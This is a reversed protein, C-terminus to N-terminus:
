RINRLKAKNTLRNWAKLTRIVLSPLLRLIRLYSTRIKSIPIASEEKRLVNEVVESKSVRHEAIQSFPLRPEQLPLTCTVRTGKGPASDIAITGGHAEITKKAIALGLGSGAARQAGDRTRFFRTFVYPLEEPPIGIGTDIITVVCEADTGYVGVDIRHAENTKTDIYKISNTILDAFVEELQRRAGCICADADITAALTIDKSEALVGMYEVISSVLVGVDIKERACDRVTADTRALRVLDRVMFSMDQSLTSCIKAHKDRPHKKLLLAAHAQIAALPTQLGHAIDALAEDHTSQAAATATAASSLAAGPLTLSPSPAARFTM